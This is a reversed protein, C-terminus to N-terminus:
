RWRGGWAAKRAARWQERNARTVTKSALGEITCLSLRIRGPRIVPHRLVRARAPEPQEKLAAVFAFKEDEYGLTGGKLLRHIRTREVRAAFHCWDGGAMPCPGGHPCPAQVQAGAALVQARAARVIAFGAPTGPEVVVLARRALRWAEEVLRARAQPALENLVYAISVVDHEELEPLSELGAQIRRAPRLDEWAGNREVLTTGCPAVWAAAGAGSGLDLWSAPEFPLESAASALAAFTAPLRVALYAAREEALRLPAPLGARYAASIREAAEALAAAPFAAAREEIAARLEEPLTINKM